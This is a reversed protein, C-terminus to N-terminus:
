VVTEPLLKELRYGYAYVPVLKYGNEPRLNLKSRIKSIHADLTRTPLDPRRGWLADFIYSRSLARHLNRFLLLALLFEKSTMPVPTGEHTISELSTDFVYNDFTEISTTAPAPYARRLVAEVRAALVVAQLPKVIYDDAGGRLGEVIDEEASRSTLLIVPPPKEIHERIWGLLAIGTLDPVNWDLLLLDFTEHHLVNLLKRGSHFTACNHGAELLVSEVHAALAPDDDLIAIRM